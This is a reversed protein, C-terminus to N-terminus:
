EKVFLFIAPPTVGRQTNNNNRHLITSDSTTNSSETTGLLTTPGLGPHRFPLIGHQELITRVRATYPKARQCLTTMKTNHAALPTVILGRKVAGEALRSAHLDTSIRQGQQFRVWGTSVETPGKKLAQCTQHASPLAQCVFNTVLDMTPAISQEDYHTTNRSSTTQLNDRRSTTEKDDDDDDDDDLMKNLLRQHSHFDFIQIDPYYRVWNQAVWLTLHTPPLLGTRNWENWWTLRQELYTQFRPTYPKNGGDPSISKEFYYSPLWDVFDRYTVIIRVRFLKSPFLDNQLIRFINPNDNPVKDGLNESSLIVHHGQQAHYELRSKLYAVRTMTENSTSGWAYYSTLMPEM